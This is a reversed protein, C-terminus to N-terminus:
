HANLLIVSIQKTKIGDRQFIDLMSLIITIQLELDLGHCQRKKPIIEWDLLHTMIQLHPVYVAIMIEVSFPVHLSIM